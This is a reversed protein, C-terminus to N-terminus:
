FSNSMINILDYLEIKTFRFTLCGMKINLCYEKNVNKNKITKEVFPCVMNVKCGLPFKPFSAKIELLLKSTPYPFEVSNLAPAHVINPEGKVILLRISKSKLLKGNPAVM